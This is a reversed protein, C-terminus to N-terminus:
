TLLAIFDFYPSLFGIVFLCSPMTLLWDCVALTVEDYVLSFCSLIFTLPCGNPINLVLPARDKKEINLAPWAKTVTITTSNNEM